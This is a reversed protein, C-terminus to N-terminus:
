SPARLIYRAVWGLGYGFVGVLALGVAIWWAEQYRREATELWTSATALVSATDQELEKVEDSAANSEAEMERRVGVLAGAMKAISFANRADDKNKDTIAIWSGAALLCLVAVVIGLWYLVNGFRAPMEKQSAM